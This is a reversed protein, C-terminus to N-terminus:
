IAGKAALYYDLIEEVKAQDVYGSGAFEAANQGATYVAGGNNNFGCSYMNITALGNTNMGGSNVVVGHRLLDQIAGDVTSAGSLGVSSANTVSGENFNNIAGIMDGSARPFLYNRQPTDFCGMMGGANIENLIYIGYSANDAQYKVGDTPKWGNNLCGTGNGDIYNDAVFNITGIVTSNFLSPNRWNRLAAQESHACSVKFLDLEDWISTPSPNLSPNNKLEVVVYNILLKDADNPEPVM